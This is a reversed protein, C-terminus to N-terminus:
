KKKTKVVVKRSKILQRTAVGPVSKNKRERRAHRVLRFSRVILAVAVVFLLLVFIIKILFALWAMNRYEQEEQVVKGETLDNKAVIEKKNDIFIVKIYAKNQIMQPYICAPGVAIASSGSSNSTVTKDVSDTNKVETVSNEVEAGVNQTMPMPCSGIGNSSVKQTSEHLIQTGVSKLEEFTKGFQEAPVQVVIAGRKFSGATYNLNTSYVLGGSEGAIESVRKRANDLNNMSVLLEGNEAADAPVIFQNDLSNSYIGSKLNNMDPSAVPVSLVDAVAPQINRVVKSVRYSSKIIVALGAFIILILVLLFAVVIKRKPHKAENKLDVRKESKAFNEKTNM